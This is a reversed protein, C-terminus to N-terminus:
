RDLRERERALAQGGSPAPGHVPVRFVKKDRFFRQAFIDAELIPVPWDVGAGADRSDEVAGAEACREVERQCKM